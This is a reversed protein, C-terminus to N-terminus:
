YEQTYNVINRVQSASIGFKRSISKYDGEFSERIMRNRVGKVLSAENPIYLNGGGAFKVLDKFAVMGIIDVTDAMGSPLDEKTLNDLM